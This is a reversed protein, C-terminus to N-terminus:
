NKMHRVRTNAEAFLRKSQKKHAQKQKKDCSDFYATLLECAANARIKLIALSEKGASSIGNGKMMSLTFNTVEVEHYYSSLHLLEQLPIPILYVHSMDWTKSELKAISKRAPYKDFAMMTELMHLHSQIELYILMSYKKLHDKDDYKKLCYTFFSVIIGGAFGQFLLKIISMIDLENIFSLLLSHM